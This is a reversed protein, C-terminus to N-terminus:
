FLVLDSLHSSKSSCLISLSAMAFGRMRRKRRKQKKNGPVRESVNPSVSKADELVHKTFVVDALQM